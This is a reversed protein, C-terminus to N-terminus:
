GEVATVTVDINGRTAKSYPCVQHARDALQQAKDLPMDPIHVSIVAALGFGSDDKGLTVECEVTSGDTTASAEGAVLKLAGHFCTAYAAAFLSEPNAAGGQGGLQKPPRVDFDIQNDSSAVHGDRGGGTSTASVTYLNDM